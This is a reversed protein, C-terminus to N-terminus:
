QACCLPIDSLWRFVIMLVMGFVDSFYFLKILLVSFRSITDIVSCTSIMLIFLKILLFGAFLM